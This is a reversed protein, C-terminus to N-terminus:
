GQGDEEVELDSGFLLSLVSRQTDEPSPPLAPRQYTADNMVFQGGTFGKMAGKVENLRHRVGAGFAKLRRNVLEQGANFDATVDIDLLTEFDGNNRDGGSNNDKKPKGNKAAEYAKEDVAM